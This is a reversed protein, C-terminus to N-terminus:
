ADGPEFRTAARAQEATFGRRILFQAAKRQIQLSEHLVDGYRRQALDCAHDCWQAEYSALAAAIVERPLGHTVLEARIRVPGQGASARSRVLLEAFRSDDQWGADALRQVTAEAEGVEVGRATLKRVLERGSHERRTLLGIARQSPTPEARRRKAPPQSQAETGVDAACKGPVGFSKAPPNM